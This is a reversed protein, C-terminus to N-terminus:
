FNFKIPAYGNKLIELIDEDSFNEFLDASADARLRSYPDISPDSPNLLYKEYEPNDVTDFIPDKLIDHGVIANLGQNDKILNFDYGRNFLESIYEDPGEGDLRFPTGPPLGIKEYFDSLGSEDFAYSAKAAPGEGWGLDDSPFDTYYNPKRFDWEIDGLRSPDTEPSVLAPDYKRDKMTNIIFNVDDKYGNKLEEYLYDPMNNLYKYRLTEYPDPKVSKFEPIYFDDLNDTYALTDYLDPLLGFKSQKYSPM